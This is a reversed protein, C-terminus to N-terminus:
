KGAGCWELHGTLKGWINSITWACKEGKRVYDWMHFCCQKLTHTVQFFFPLARGTEKWLKDMSLFMFSFCLCGVWREVALQNVTHSVQSSHTPLPGVSNNIDRKTPDTKQLGPEPRRRQIKLFFMGRNPIAKLAPKLGWDHFNTHTFAHISPATPSLCQSPM